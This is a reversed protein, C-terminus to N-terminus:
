PIVVRALKRQGLILIGLLLTRPLSCKLELTGHELLSLAVPVVYTNAKLALNM